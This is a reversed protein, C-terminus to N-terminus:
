DDGPGWYPRKCDDHCEQEGQRESVLPEGCLSCTGFYCDDCASRLEIGVCAAPNEVLGTGSCTECVPWDAPIPNGHWDIRVDSM